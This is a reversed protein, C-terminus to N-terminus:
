SQQGDAGNKDQRAEEARLKAIADEEARLKAEEEADAEAEANLDPQLIHFKGEMFEEVAMDVPREDPITGEDRQEEAIQRARKSVAVVFSYCNENNRVIDNVSLKLM